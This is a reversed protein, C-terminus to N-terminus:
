CIYINKQTINKATWQSLVIFTLYTSYLIGNNRTLFESQKFIEFYCHLSIVFISKPATILNSQPITYRTCSMVSAIYLIEAVALFHYLKNKALHNKKKTKLKNKKDRSWFSMPESSWRPIFVQMYVFCLAKVSFFYVNVDLRFSLTITSSADRSWFVMFESNYRSINVVKFYVFICEYFLKNKIGVDHPKNHSM